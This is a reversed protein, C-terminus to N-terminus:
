NIQRVDQVLVFPQVVVALWKRGEDLPWADREARSPKRMEGSEIWAGVTEVEDGAVAVAVDLLPLEPAIVIVADRELHSKIDGFLVPGLGEGLKVRVAEDYSM